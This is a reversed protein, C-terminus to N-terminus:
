RGALARRRVASSTTWYAYDAYVVLSTVAEDQAAVVSVSRDSMRLLGIEDPNGRAFLVRDGDVTIAVIRRQEQFLTTALPVSADLGPGLDSAIKIAGGVTTFVFGGSGAATLLDGDTDSALRMPIGDGLRASFLGQETLLGAIEGNITGARAVGIQDKDLQVPARMDSPSGAVDYSHAQNVETPGSRFYIGIVILRGSASRSLSLHTTFSGEDLPESVFTALPIRAIHRGGFNWALHNPFAALMVPTNELVVESPGADRSCVFGPGGPCVRHVRRTDRELWFVGEASVTVARAGAQAAALTEVSAASADPAADGIVNSTADGRGLAADSASDRTLIELDRAWLCAPIPAVLGLACVALRGAIVAAKM